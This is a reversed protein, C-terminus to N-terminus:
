GSLCGQGQGIVCTFMWWPWISHQDRLLPKKIQPSDRWGPAGFSYGQYCDDLVFISGGELHWPCPQSRFFTLPTFFFISQAKTEAVGWLLSLGSPVHLLNLCSIGLDESYTQIRLPRKNQMECRTLFAYGRGGRGM